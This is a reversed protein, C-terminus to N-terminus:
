VGKYQIYHVVRYPNMLSFSQGGGTDGTKSGGGSVGEWPEASMSGGLGSLSDVGHNHPPLEDVTLKKTKAGSQKGVVDFDPDSAQFGVPVRGSLATYEVWLPPIENAPRGWLAILGIPINGVLPRAELDEIRQVLDAINKTAFGRKFDAWDMAGVGTGFQIYRTKVAPYANNNKYILSTTDEKIIVKSQVSGGKFSFLEGNVFVVGDSVTSGTLECGSIITKDGAISGLANFITYATQMRDLAAQNLPFGNIIGFDQKNM